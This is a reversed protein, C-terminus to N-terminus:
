ERYWLKGRRAGVARVIQKLPHPRQDESRERPRILGEEGLLRANTFDFTRGTHLKPAARIIRDPWDAARRTDKVFVAM